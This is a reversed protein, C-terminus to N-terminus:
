NLAHMYTQLSGTPMFILIDMEKGGTIDNGYCTLM